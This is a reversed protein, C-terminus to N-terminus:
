KELLAYIIKHIGTKGEISKMELEIINFYKSYLTQMEELSSFYLTTGIPTKRFKENSGFSNDKESFHVAFYKGGKSLLKSINQLYAERKDPFVHHLVEWEFAFKFNNPLNTIDKTLDRCIFDISQSENKSKAIKIAEESVDIGTVDFGENALYSSHNGTGCGIDLCKCPTIVNKKILDVLEDPPSFKIWPIEEENTTSYISNMLSKISNEM